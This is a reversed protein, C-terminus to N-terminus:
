WYAYQLPPRGAEVICFMARDSVIEVCMGDISRQTSSCRTKHERKQGVVLAAAQVDPPRMM